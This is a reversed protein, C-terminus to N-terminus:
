RRQTHSKKGFTDKIISLLEWHIDTREEPINLEKKLSQILERLQHILILQYESGVFLVLIKTLNKIQTISLNYNEEM